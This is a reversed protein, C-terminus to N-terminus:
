ARDLAWDAMVPLLSDMLAQFGAVISAPNDDAVAVSQRFARTGIVRQDQDNLVTLTLDVTASFSGDAGVSVEFADIRTLLATDPVPGGDARGVYGIRGTASISRVLLTQVVRPLDDAWRADPLYTIAAQAPRIMIRDVALAAPADPLAVLLTRGTSRGATSGTRPSLDYTNLPTGASSLASVAGCGALAFSGGLLALRRTMQIPTM